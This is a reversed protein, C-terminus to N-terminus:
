VSGRRKASVRAVAKVNLNLPQGSEDVFLQQCTKHAQANLWLQPEEREIEGEAAEVQAALAKMEEWGRVYAACGGFHRISLAVQQEEDDDVTILFERELEEESPEVIDLTSTFELGETLDVAGDCMGAFLNGLGNSEQCSAVFSASSLLQKLYEISFVNFAAEEFPPMQKLVDDALDIHDVVIVFKSFGFVRGMLVPFKFTSALFPELATRDLWLSTFLGLLARIEPVILRFDESLVFGRPLLPKGDVAREFAQTLGGAFQAMLPRQAAIAQFTLQVITKYLAGLDTFLDPITAVDLPFIFTQKWDGAAVLELLLQQAFVALYTSKGSRPPGVIAIRFSHSTGGPFAFRHKAILSRARRILSDKGATAQQANLNQQQFLTNLSQSWAVTQDHELSSSAGILKKQWNELDNVASDVKSHSVDPV